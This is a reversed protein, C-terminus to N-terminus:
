RRGRRHTRCRRRADVRRSSSGRRRLSREVYAEANPYRELISRRPDGTMRREEPTEPLPITAAPSNMCQAMALAARGCTGAAIPASRRRWWRRGSAPSTTATPTSQRCWCRTARARCSRRPNRASDRAGGRPRFGAAASFEARAPHRRRSHGSVAPAMGRVRGPHRRRPTSHPQRTARHRRDGLPGDRRDDRSVADLHRGHQSFEPPHGRELPKPSRTPLISRAPGSISGCM